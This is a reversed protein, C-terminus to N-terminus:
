VFALDGSLVWSTSTIKTATAQSWQERLKTVFAAPKNLTDTTIAVTVQGAGLQVLQIVTGVPYAVSSNAPLTFTIASANSLTILKGADALVATYTTGTQNNIALVADAKSAVTTVLGDLTAGDVSVDRGDVTQLAPLAISGSDSITVLSNQLTKGGVGDFRVVANDTSSAPGSVDGTGGGGGSGVPPQTFEGDM